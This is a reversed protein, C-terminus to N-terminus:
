SADANFYIKLKQPQSSRNIIKPEMKVFRPGSINLNTIIFGTGDFVLGKSQALSCLSNNLFVKVNQVGKVIKIHGGASLNAGEVNSQNFIIASSWDAYSIKLGKSYTAPDTDIKTFALKCFSNYGSFKIYDVFIKAKWDKLTAPTSIINEDYIEEPNDSLKTKSSDVLASVLEEPEWTLEKRHFLGFKESSSKKINFSGNDWILCGIQFRRTTQIYFNAWKVREQTNNKNVCGMEGVIVNYGRLVYKEYLNRLIAYFDNKIRDDFTSKKRDPTFAFEYPFYMHVSLMIKNNNPNYKKDSPFVFDSKILNHYQAALGTVLVFRKENNGGSERIAKLCIKNYENICSTAEECIPDGKKYTWECKSKEPRPENMCEFILNQDYGKNYATAIQSWINYLFRESEERDKNATFYGSRYSIPNDQLKANDHHSNLIVVLDQKLAWDVIEKTHSMWNPDITYNEDILHNHWSVPIRISNFGRRKIEKIMEETESDPDYASFNDLKFADLTNGLNWGVGMKNIIDKQTKSDDFKKNGTDKVIMSENFLKKPEFKFESYLKEELFDKHALNQGNSIIFLLSFYYIISYDIKM